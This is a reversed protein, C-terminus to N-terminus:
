KPVMRSAAAMRAQWGALRNRGVQRRLPPASGVLRSSASVETARIRSPKGAAVSSQADDMSPEMLAQTARGAGGDALESRIVHIDRPAEIGIRVSHGQIHLVTLVINEGIQIREQKKRSLVLM